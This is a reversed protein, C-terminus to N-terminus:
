AARGAVANLARLLNEIPAGASAAAEMLTLHAGCCHNIGMEKMLEQAGPYLHAVDAVTQDASIAPRIKGIEVRWVEPGQELYSWQFTGPREFTFQYYLPSPDHDNVLVFSEGPALAEFTEFIKPHRIKPAMERVDLVGPASHRCGCAHVM